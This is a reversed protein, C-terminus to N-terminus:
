SISTVERFLATTICGFSFLNLRGLMLITMYIIIRRVTRTAALGLLM